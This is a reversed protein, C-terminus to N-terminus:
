RAEKIQEEPEKAFMLTEAFEQLIEHLTYRHTYNQNEIKIITDYMLKPPVTYRVRKEFQTIIDYFVRPDYSGGTHRMLAGITGDVLKQDSKM